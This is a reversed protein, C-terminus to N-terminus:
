RQVALVGNKVACSPFSPGDKAPAGVSWESPLFLPKNKVIGANSVLRAQKGAESQSYVVGIGDLLAYEDSWAIDLVTVDRGQEDKANWRTVTPLAPDGAGANVKGDLGVGVQHYLKAPPADPDDNAADESTWVEVHPAHIWSKGAAAAAAAQASPDYVQVVLHNYAVAVAKVEAAAADPAAKGYVLFGAKGDSRLILACDGLVTGKLLDTAGEGLPAPVVLAGYVKPGPTPGFAGSPWDPCGITDDEQMQKADGTRMKVARAQLSDYDIDTLTGSWPTLTHFSCDREALVRWPSLSYTTTGSWRDASGGEQTHMLRNKGIKVEDLGVGAAGYGDNCLALVMRPADDARLLWYEYGGNREDSDQDQSLCGDEPADEGKDAVGFTVQAISLKAGSEDSGAATVAAIKCSSRQGCIAAKQDAPLSATNVSGAVLVAVTATVAIMFFRM